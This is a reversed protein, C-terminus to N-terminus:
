GRLRQRQRWLVMVIALAVWHKSLGESRIHRSCRWIRNMEETWSPEELLHLLLMDIYETDLERLYREFADRAFQERERVSLKKTNPKANAVLVTMLAVKERPVKKLAERCFGHTGYAEALDFFTIGREYSKLFLQEAEATSMTAKKKANRKAWLSQKTLGGVTGTGLGLRSMKIGCGPLEVQPMASNSTGFSTSAVAAMGAIPGIFHRRDTKM